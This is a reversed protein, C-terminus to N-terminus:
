RRRRHDPGTRQSHWTNKAKHCPKCLYGRCSPCYLRDKQECKEVWGDECFGRRQKVPLYTINRCHHDCQMVLPNMKASYSGNPLRSRSPPQKQAESNTQPAADGNTNLSAIAKSLAGFASWDSKEVRVSEKVVTSPIVTSATPTMVASSLEELSTQEASSMTPLIAAASCTSRSGSFEFLEFQKDPMMVAPASFVSQEKGHGQNVRASTAFVGESHKEPTADKIPLSEPDRPLETSVKSSENQGDNVEDVVESSSIVSEFHKKPTATAPDPGNRANKAAAYRRRKSLLLFDNFQEELKWEPPEFYCRQSKRQIPLASDALKQSESPEVSQLFAYRVKEMVWEGISKSPVLDSDDSLNTTQNKGPGDIHETFEKTRGYSFRFRPRQDADLDLRAEEEVAMPYHERGEVIAHFSQVHRKWGPSVVGLFVKPDLLSLGIETVVEVPQDGMTQLGRIIDVSIIIPMSARDQLFAAPLSAGSFRLMMEFLNCLVFHAHNGSNGYEDYKFIQGCAWSLRELSIPHLSSEVGKDNESRFKQFEPEAETGRSRLRSLRGPRSSSGPPPLPRPAFVPPICKVRTENVFYHKALEQALDITSFADCFIRSDIGEDMLSGSFCQKEADHHVLFIPRKTEPNPQTSLRLREDPLLGCQRCLLELDSPM